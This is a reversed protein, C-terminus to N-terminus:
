GDLIEMRPRRSVTMVDEKKIDLFINLPNNSYDDAQVARRPKIPRAMCFYRSEDAIHDEGETDLDEVKHEDFIWTPGTRIFAKCNKFVEMM